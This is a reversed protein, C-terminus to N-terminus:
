RRPHTTAHCDYHMTFSGGAEDIAAGVADLLVRRASPDMLAHDSHTELQRLWEAKSYECDWPYTAHEAADFEDRVAFAAESGGKRQPDTPRHLVTPSVQEPAHRAYVDDLTSRLAAPMVAHNWALVVRGGPAVVGAARAAGAIPDVWHWAQGAVLLHFRRGKDDWGEFAGLEVDLGHRQAVEAMKADPEVGLVSAGRALLARGLIGTGCGVDLVHSPRPAMLADLLAEPYRPRTEDYLEANAGFSSARARNDFHPEDGPTGAGTM